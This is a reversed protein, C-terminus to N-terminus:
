SRIRLTRSILTPAVGASITVEEDTQVARTVVTISAATAGEPILVFAPMAMSADSSALPVRLGGAPAPQLLRVEIDVTSGGRASGPFQVRDIPLPQVQLDVSPGGAGSALRVIRTTGVARPQVRVSGSTQGGQIFVTAAPVIAPDSSALAVSMGAPDAARTLSVTLVTEGGGFPNQPAATVASVSPPPPDITVPHNASNPGLTAVVQVSTTTGVAASRLQLSASSAGAPILVAPPVRLAQADSSRLDVTIGGASAPGSLNVTMGVLDGGTVRTPQLTITRLSVAPIVTISGTVQQSAAAATIDVTVPTSVPSTSIPFNASVAGAPVLVTGPVSAASPQSSTLRVSFGGAPAARDLSINGTNTTGGPANSAGLALLVIRRPADVTFTANWPGPSGRVASVNVTASTAGAVAGTAIRLTADRTGSSYNLVNNSPIQIPGSGTVFFAYPVPVPHVLQVRVDATSSADAPDPTVTVSQVAPEPHIEITTSKATAGSGVTVQVQTMTTVPQTTVRVVGQQGGAPITILSPTTAPLAAGSPSLLTLSVPLDLGSAPAPADIGVSGVYDLGGINKAFRFSVGVPEPATVLFMISANVALDLPDRLQVTAQRTAGVSLTPVPVTLEQVGQAFSLAKQVPLDIPHSGAVHLTHYGRTPGVPETLRIQVNAATSGRVPANTLTLTEIRPSPHLDITASKARAGSGATVRVSTLTSVAQTSLYLTASSRGEPITMATPASAPLPAGSPSAVALAIPIVLSGSPAPSALTVTASVPSGGYTDPPNFRVDSVPPETLVDLTASQSSGNPETVTVTVRTDAAVANTALQFGILNAGEGITANGAPAIRTDSSRVTVVVGGPPAGGSLTIRVTTSRGGLVVDPILRVSTVTVDDDDIITTQGSSVRGTTYPFVSAAFVTVTVTEDLEDVDDDITLVTISASTQGAPITVTGSLAQYDRDATATGTVQYRVTLDGPVARDSQVTFTVPTRSPSRTPNEPVSANVTTLTIVPKQAAVTSLGTTLSLVSASVFTRMGM